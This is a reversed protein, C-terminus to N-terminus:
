AGMTLAAPVFSALDVYPDVLSAPDLPRGAAALAAIADSAEWISLDVCAVL